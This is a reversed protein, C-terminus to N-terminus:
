EVKTASGNMQKRQQGYFKCYRKRLGKMEFSNLCREENKGLLWSECGYTAVPWVLPKM